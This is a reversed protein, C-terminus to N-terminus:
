LFASLFFFIIYSELLKGGEGVIMLVVAIARQAENRWGAMRGARPEACAMGEDTRYMIRSLIEM